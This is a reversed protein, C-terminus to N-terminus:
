DTGGWNRQDWRLDTGPGNRDGGLRVRIWDQYLGSERGTGDLVGEWNKGLETKLNLEKKVSGM